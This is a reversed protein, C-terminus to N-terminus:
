PLSNHKSELQLTQSQGQLLVISHTLEWSYSCIDTDASMVTYWSDSLLTLVQLGYLRQLRDNTFLKQSSVGLDQRRWLSQFFVALQPYIRVSMLQTQPQANMNLNYCQIVQTPLSNIQLICLCMCFSFSSHFFSAQTSLIKTRSCTEM